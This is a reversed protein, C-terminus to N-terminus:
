ATAEEVLQMVRGYDQEKVETLNVANVQGLVEVLKERGHTKALGLLAKKIDDKSYSVTETAAEEANSLESVPEEAKPQEITEAKVAPQVEAAPTLNEVPEFNVTPLAATGTDDGFIYTELKQVEQIINSADQVGMHLFQSCMSIRFEQLSPMQSM